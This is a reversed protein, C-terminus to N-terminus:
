RIEQTETQKDLRRRYRSDVFGAVLLLVVCSYILVRNGVIFHDIRNYEMRKKIAMLYAAVTDGCPLAAMAPATVDASALTKDVVQQYIEAAIYPSLYKSTPSTDDLIRQSETSLNVCIRQSLDPVADEALCLNTLLLLSLAMFWSAFLRKISM